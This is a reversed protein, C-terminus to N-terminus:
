SCGMSNGCNLCRYCSGNRVTVHGCTSCMPADGMMKSLQANLPDNSVIRSYKASAAEANTQAIASKMDVDSRFEADSRSGSNTRAEPYAAKELPLAMQDSAVNPLRPPEEGTGDSNHVRSLALDEVVPKVHVFDTKGLYEMGVVRFIYDLISTAQKINPHDVM